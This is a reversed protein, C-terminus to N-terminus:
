NSEEKRKKRNCYKHLDLNQQAQCSARLRVAFREAAPVMDALPAEIGFHVVWATALAAEASLYVQRRNEVQAESFPAARGGRLHGLRARAEGGVREPRVADTHGVAARRQGDEPPAGGATVQADRVEEAHVPQLQQRHQRHQQGRPGGTVRPQVRLAPGPQHQDAAGRVNSQDRDQGPLCQAPLRQQPGVRRGPRCEPDQGHGRDDNRCTYQSRGGFLRM